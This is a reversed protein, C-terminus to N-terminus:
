GERRRQGGLILTDLPAAPRLRLNDGLRRPPQRARGDIEGVQQRRWPEVFAAPEERVLRAQLLPLLEQCVATFVDARHSPQVPGDLAFEMELVYRSEYSLITVTADRRTGRIYRGLGAKQGETWAFGGVPRVAELLQGLGPAAKFSVALTSTAEDNGAAEKERCLLHLEAVWGVTFAILDVLLHVPLPLPWTVKVTHAICVVATYMLCVVVTHRCTPRRATGFSTSNVVIVLVSLLVAFLGLQVWFVELVVVAVLVRIIRFLMAIRKETGTQCGAGAVAAVAPAQRLRAMFATLSDASMIM